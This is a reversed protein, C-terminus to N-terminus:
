LSCVLYVGVFYNLSVSPSSRQVCTRGKVCVDFCVVTQGVGSTKRAM